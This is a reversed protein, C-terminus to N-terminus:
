PRRRAAGRLYNRFADPANPPAIDFDIELRDPAALVYTLRFRPQSALTDGLFVIRGPTATVTYRIVHGENDYYDARVASDQRHIVTLDQHAGAKNRRVLVRQDLDYALSFGGSAGEGVAEWEGALSALADWAPSAPPAALLLALALLM